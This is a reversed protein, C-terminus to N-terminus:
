DLGVAARQLKTLEGIGKKALALLELFQAESFPDQEATGQVEVIGGKGTMCRANKDLGAALGVRNPFRLGALTIPDAVRPQQLLARLPSHQLRELQALALDHAKEADLCFLFPRLLPYPLLSM